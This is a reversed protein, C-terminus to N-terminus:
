ETSEKNLLRRQLQILKANMGSIKRQQIEVINMIFLKFLREPKRRFYDLVESRYFKLMMTNEIASVSATRGGKSFLFTEGIFDGDSLSALHIEDKWVSVKGSIILFATDVESSVEDIILDEKEYLLPQGIKLFDRLDEASFNRFLLPSQLLIKNIGEQMQQNRSGINDM